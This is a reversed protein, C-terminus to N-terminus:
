MGGDPRDFGFYLDFLAGNLMRAVGRDKVMAVKLTDCTFRASLNSELARGMGQLVLLDARSREVADSLERSVRTLDILPTGNGSEVLELAGSSLAGGLAGDMRAAEGVLATLERHTIDNLAPLTNATLVVRTGQRLLERALPLVGLTIDTGANDAFICAARYSGRDEMRRFWRDLDDRLWPRPKLRRRSDAFGAQGSEFLESTEACGLDFINGAFLGEALAEWRRNGEMSDIERLVEPLLALAARNESEKVVEFPDAIGANGLARQRAECIQLVDLRGFREPEGGAEELFAFFEARAKVTRERAREPDDGNVVCATVAEDLLRPFGERFVGVWYEREEPMATLDWDCAQYAVPNSLLPFLAPRESPQSM